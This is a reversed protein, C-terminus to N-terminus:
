VDENGSEENGSSEENLVIGFHKAAELVKQDQLAQERPELTLYEKWKERWQEIRKERAKGETGRRTDVLWKRLARRRAKQESTLEPLEENGEGSEENVFANGFADVKVKGKKVLKEWESDLERYIARLKNDLSTAKKAWAARGDASVTADNMLLRTNERAADLERLLGRVKQAKEQTKVPLLHIYQDIHKPRVPVLVGEPKGLSAPEKVGKAETKQPHEKLAPTGKLPKAQQSRTAVSLQEAMWAIARKASKVYVGDPWWGKDMKWALASVLLVGEEFGKCEADNWTVSMQVANQQRAEPRAAIRRLMGYRGKMWEGVRSEYASRETETLNNYRKLYQSRQLKRIMIM